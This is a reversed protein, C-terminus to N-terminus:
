NFEPFLNACKQALRLSGEFVKLNQMQGCFGKFYFCLILFSPDIISVM